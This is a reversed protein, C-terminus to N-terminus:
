HSKPVQARLAALAHGHRQGGLATLCAVILAVDELPPSGTEDLWRRLWRVALPRSRERDRVAPLATFEIAEALM